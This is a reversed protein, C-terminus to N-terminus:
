ANSVEEVNQTAPKDTAKRADEEDLQKLTAEISVEGSELKKTFNELSLSRIYGIVASGIVCAGSAALSIALIVFTTGSLEALYSDYGFDVGALKVYLTEAIGGLPLWFIRVIQMVGFVLQVWFMKRNYNKVQESFLFVFLLFFLNYIVDIAMPWKYYFNYYNKDIHAYLTIFYVCSFVIGLLALNAAFKNKKYRQIDDKIVPNIAAKNKM